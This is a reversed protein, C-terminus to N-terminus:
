AHLWPLTPTTFSKNLHGWGVSSSTFWRESPPSVGNRAAHRPSWRPTTLTRSSVPGLALGSRSSKSGFWFAFSPRLASQHAACLPWTRVRLHSRSFQPTPRRSQSAAASPRSPKSGGRLTVQKCAALAMARPSSTSLITLCPTEFCRRSRARARMRRACFAVFADTRMRSASPTKKPVSM